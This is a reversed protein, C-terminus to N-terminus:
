SNLLAEFSYRYSSDSDVAGRNTVLAWDGKLADGYRRQNLGLRSLWVELSAVEKALYRADQKPKMSCVFEISHQAMLLIQELKPGAAVDFM